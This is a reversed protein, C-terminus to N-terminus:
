EQEGNDNGGLNTNAIRTVILAQFYHTLDNLIQERDKYIIVCHEGFLDFTTAGNDPITHINEAGIREMFYRIVSPEVNIIREADSDDDLHMKKYEPLLESFDVGLALAIRQLTQVKPKRFGNEWHSIQSPKVGLRKALEKQTIGAMKRARVIRFGEPTLKYEKM